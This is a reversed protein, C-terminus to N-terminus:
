FQLSFAFFYSCQINCPLMYISYMPRGTIPLQSSSHLTTSVPMVSFERSRPPHSIPVQYSSSTQRPSMPQTLSHLKVGWGVCYLDNRLRPSMPERNRLPLPPTPPKPVNSAQEEDSSTISLTTNAACWTVITLTSQAMVCCVSFFHM